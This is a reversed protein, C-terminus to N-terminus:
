VLIIDGFIGNGLSKNLFKFVEFPICNKMNRSWLLTPSYKEEQIINESSKEEEIEDIENFIPKDESIIFPQFKEELKINGQEDIKQEPERPMKNTGNKHDKM